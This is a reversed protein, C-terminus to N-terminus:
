HEFNNKYVTYLICFLLYDTFKSLNGHIKFYVNAHMWFTYSQGLNIHILSKIVYTKQCKKQYLDSKKLKGM